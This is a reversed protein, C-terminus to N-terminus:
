CRRRSRGLGAISPIALALLGALVLTLLLVSVAAALTPPLRLRELTNAVPTLM